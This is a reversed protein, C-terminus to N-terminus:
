LMYLVMQTLPMQLIHCSLYVQLLQTFMQEIQPNYVLKYIALYTLLFGILYGKESFFLIVYQVIFNTYVNVGAFPSFSNLTYM